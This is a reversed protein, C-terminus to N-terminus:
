SVQVSLESVLQISGFYLKGAVTQTHVELSNYYSIYSLCNLYVLSFTIVSLDLMHLSCLLQMAYM